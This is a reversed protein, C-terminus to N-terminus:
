APAGTRDVSGALGAPPQGADAGPPQGADYTPVGEPTGTVAAPQQPQMGGLIAEGPKPAPLGLLKQLSDAGVQGGVELYFKAADIIQAVNPSDIEFVWRPTPYGPYTYANVVSVFDQTLSDQFGTADYKIVADGTRELVEAPADALGSPGGLTTGGTALIMRRIVGDLYETILTTMLQTSATSPDFREVPKYNPEGTRERPFLLFPKGANETARARVEEYAAPNGLEYYYITLGQAFWKLYDALLGMILNKFAWFWYLRERLGVGNIAGAKRPRFYSADEPRYRHLLLVQREEPTFIHVRGFDSIVNTQQDAYTGHVRVGVRGDYMFVLKDGDIPVHNTPVLGMRGAANRWWKYMIQAGGRGTWTTTDLVSMFLDHLRPMRRIRKELDAAAEVLKSDAADEPELHWTLLATSRLRTELPEMIVPDYRMAIANDVNDFLAEDFPWSYNQTATNMLASFTQEHPVVLSMRGPPAMDVSPVIPLKPEPM